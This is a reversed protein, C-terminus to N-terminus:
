CRSACIPCRTPTSRDRRHRLVRRAHLVAEAASLDADGAERGGVGAPAPKGGVGLHRCTSAYWWFVLANENDTKLGVHLYFRSATPWITTTSASRGAALASRGDLEVHVRAGLPLRVFAAPRLRLLDAHLPHREPRHDPDHMEILVHPYKAKVRRALEFLAKAHEERTSPISHGHTKDYCPGSYQDSDFM